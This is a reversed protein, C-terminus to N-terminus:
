QEGGSTTPVATTVAVRRLYAYVIADAGAGLNRSNTSSRLRIANFPPDDEANDFAVKSPDFNFDIEIHNRIDDFDEIITYRKTSGDFFTELEQWDTPWRQANSSMFDVLLDGTGWVRFGDRVVLRVSNVTRMTYMAVALAVAIVTVSILLSRTSFRLGESAILRGGTQDAFSV